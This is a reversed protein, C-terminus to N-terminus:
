WFLGRQNMVIRWMLHSKKPRKEWVLMLVYYTTLRNVKRRMKQKAVMVMKVLLKSGSGWSSVWIFSPPKWTSGNAQFFFALILCHQCPVSNRAQILRELGLHIQRVPSPHAMMGSWSEAKWGNDLCGNTISSPLIPRVCCLISCRIITYKNSGPRTYVGAYPSRRSKNASTILNSCFYVSALFLIGYLLWMIIKQQTSGPQGAARTCLRSSAHTTSVRVYVDNSSSDRTDDHWSLTASNSTM